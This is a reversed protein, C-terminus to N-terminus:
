FTVQLRGSTQHGKQVTRTKLWPNQQTLTLMQPNRSSHPARKEVSDEV